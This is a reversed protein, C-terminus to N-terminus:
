RKGAALAANLTAALQAVDPEHLMGNHDGTTTRLDLYGQVLKEWGLTDKSVSLAKGIRSMTSQTAAEARILTADLPLPQAKYNMLMQQFGKMISLANELFDYNIAGQSAEVAQSILEDRPLHKIDKINLGLNGLNIDAFLKLLNADGQLTKMLTRNPLHSDLLGIFAIEQGADLLQRAMEWAVVGGISHGALYYPGEPQQERIAQIYYAAMDPLNDFPYQNPEFGRAQIGYVPIDDSLHNALKEYCLVLAGMPHVIFLPTKSGTPKIPVLPSWDIVIDGSVLKALEAVTQAKFLSALPLNIDFQKEIQNILRVALLSHGGLEFFNDHIGVKTRGLEEQWITVIAKEIDNRPAVYDHELDTDLALLTNRDVKGNPTLPWNSLALLNSPMMYDPLHKSLTSRWDIQNIAQEDGVVYAIILDEKVLVLCDQVNDLQRLTYEIEGLEIRLGRVKVQFDIRGVYMLQTLSNDTFRVLDGTRYMLGEGFPNAFFKEQTLEPQDHYGSGVSHGAICLEGLLGPPVLQNNENLVYIQVNNNPRGLPIAPTADEALLAPADAIRHYTAIDTCETPGYMNVIETSFADSNIWKKMQGLHIPEGGFLLLRLHNLSTVAQTTDHAMEILPYFASPACNIVTIKHQEINALFREVDYHEVDPLVVTGGVTLLAFFNKQTLDFGFASIILARDKANFGFERTYWDLLNIEGRHLVGAGKPLGTSGSTYIMYIGHEPRTKVSTDIDPNLVSQTSLDLQDINLPETRSGDLLQNFRESMCSETILIPADCDSLMHKLREDPYNADMPIYIGGAKLVAVIAVLVEIRRGLCIGVSSQATVGKAILFHALQNAHNNLEAYSLQKQGCIVATAQPTKEVQAEIMAQVSNFHPTDYTTGNLKDPAKAILELGERPLVLKLEALQSKGAILQDSLLMLRDLFQLDNFYATNFDLYLNLQNQLNKVAFGVSGEAQPTVHKFDFDHGQMPITHGLFDIFNYSFNIGGQPVMHRLAFISLCQRDRTEEQFAKAYAFLAKIDDEGEHVSAYQQPIVFPNVQYCCVMTEKHEANRGTGFENLVVDGDARTYWHILLGYLCKFYLAPTIRQRFCFKKIASFKEDNLVLHKKQWQTDEPLNNQIQLAAVSQLRERWFETVETSDFTQRNQAIYEGLLDEQQPCPEGNLLSEYVAIAKWLHAEGAVGDLLMHHFSMLTIFRSESIKIVGYQLLSDAKVDWPRVIFQQKLEEISEENLQQASLDEYVFAVERQRAIGLYAVDTYALDSTIVDARLIAFSDSVQQLAQQWLALDLELHIDYAYGVSNELTDPNTLSSLYLDRQMTTIPLIERYTDSSAALLGHLEDKDVLAFSNIGISPDECIQTLIRLYHEVMTAITKEDFLDTNYEWSGGLKGDPMEALNVTMDWKAVVQDSVMPKLQLGAFEEALLDEIGQHQIASQLQFSTQALPQYALTREVGLTQLTMEIPVHEHAFADLVTQRVHRLADALSPNEDFRSRILLSNVFFGILPEVEAVTRGVLPIGTCIDHMGSYRALLIQFATLTTMFLTSGQAQSIATLKSTLDAPVKIPYIAGNYTQIDPRPRDTPLRLLDPAGQLQNIWYGLQKDLMDGQLWSRQWYAYDTYQVALEPLPSPQDNNFAAYLQVIEMFLVKLSDGDSIIHHINIALLHEDEALKAVRAQFLPGTEIDFHTGANDEAFAIAQQEKESAPLASLDTIPLDFTKHEHIVLYPENDEETFTTRLAEHRQVITDFTQQLVNLNVAGNIRLAMPMNYIANDPILQDLFWLRQQAYTVPLQQDRPARELPPLVLEARGSKNDILAGIQAITTSEFLDRLALDINFLQRIRGAIQTATLSHGGLDFFSDHIGIQELGLVESWILALKEETETRPAVYDAGAGGGIDPLAERDIKGNPTLPWESLGLLAQPIMYDPLYDALQSRWDAPAQDGEILTMYAILTDDKVLALADSVNDQQRLAYEIEGLEIRLGRLKVQFDIRGIFELNGDELQRVMDGTRYLKGTAKDKGFAFPYDIFAEKTLEPKGFYGFGVSEGGVLLEGPVGPPVLHNEHDVVYLSVGVNAKGIPIPQNIFQDPQEVRYYSSIDTCETPGYMNVIQGICKDSQLWPLLKEMRIPEGGFLALRLTALEDYGEFNDILPYFASPASNLLTVSHQAITQRILQDDYGDSEPFVVAGGVTLAAFLNKQTLDFGIASIILSRDKETINFERCYWQLLNVEGRQKVGAGKPRGTSGSTYILYLMNDLGIDVAPNSSSYNEIGSWLSQESQDLYFTNDHEPLRESLCAESLLVKVRADSLMYALRERPYNADMPIYIAGTKITALLAVMFDIGASMCLGVATGRGVQLEEILYNALKNARQNLEIYSLQHTGAIVAINNPTREIQAEILAIVSNASYSSTTPAPLLEVTERPFVFTLDGLTEVGKDIIQRSLSLLRDIFQYDDFVNDSYGLILDLGKESQQGIFNICDQMRPIILKGPALTGAIEFATSLGYFNYIVQARGSGLAQRQASNSLNEYAESNARYNSVYHLLEDISGSAQLIDATAIFPTGQFYCGLTLVHGKPRGTLIENFYFGEHNNCYVKLMLCYLAKFYLGPTTRKKLCFKKISTWHADDVHRELQIYQGPGAAKSAPVFPSLPEVQLAQESWFQQVDRSDFHHRNFDIYKAFADNNSPEQQLTNLDTGKLLEQYIEAIKYNISAVAIGDCLAHNACTLIGIHDDSYPFLKIRFLAENHQYPQYVLAELQQRFADSDPPGAPPLTEAIVRSNPHEAKIVAQYAVDLWPTENGIFRSRLVPEHSVVHDLAQQWLDIRFPAHLDITVGLYNRQNDPNIIGDLFLDQQMATMPLLTEFQQRDLALLQFLSDTPCIPVANIPRDVDQLMHQLLQQFHEAMQAPTTADFLDSAYEISALIEQESENFTWIMDYKATVEDSELLEISLEESVVRNQSGMEPQYNFGVQAIPNYAASREVGLADVVQEAPLEQHNFAGLVGNKVDDILQSVTPNDSLDTRVILSNVFFGILGELARQNRGAIPIGVCIDRQSAYRSLLLQYASLMTMFPTINHTKSFDRIMGMLEAGISFRHYAGRGSQTAPRPRDTPLNLLKPAGRLTDLWYQLQEELIEGQLVHHQWYAYDAYQVPLPALLAAQRSKAAQYFASLDSLMVGLSWADSIIHHMNVLLLYEKDATKYLSTTLLPAQSLDFASSAMETSLRTVEQDREEGALHILDEVPLDWSDLSHIEQQTEGAENQIFSTRLIEHRMALQAFAHRLADSDLEGTIRLAAPMNYAASQPDLQQFFWLRQQNFSLPLVQNRNVPKIAPISLGKHEQTEIAAALGEVTPAEFLVKLPIDLQFQERLRAIVQTALLSHGGLEFFNDTAGVQGIGIITAWISAIASETENRPEIYESRKQQSQDPKPLAKRDVKGNPTLPMADLFLFVGPVMYDPLSQRLHEQLVEASVAEDHSVVYGVLIANDDDGKSTHVVGERVAPHKNLVTEIEGLEIRYGRVKVQNDIRGQCELRGDSLYRAMDGTRYIRESDTPDLERFPSDIFAASTLDDRGLYGFAVGDGGIWLEGSVGIPVPQHHSDLIFLSTNAIATGISVNNGAIPGPLHYVTSWVTTETPGYMNYLDVGRDILENALRPPLPEGGCLGKLSRSTRWDSNVLMHWTAPTAQLVSIHQENLLTTLAQHDMADMRSAIVVKGGLLLPLFLELGAIDFSLTTVALLIDHQDMALSEKMAYLFNVFAQQPIAVGKPKGTSGSTYITYAMPQEAEPRISLNGREQKAIAPAESDVCILTVGEKPLRDLLSQQTILVALQASEIVYETREQPYEPDIPVYACGSKLVALLAIVMENSRELCVGILRDTHEHHNRLHRALQNAATNLEAYSMTQGAFSIAAANANLEAQEEILEHLLKQRPYDALTQNWDFLQQRIEAEPLLPLTAISQEPNNVISQLLRQFHDVMRQITQREFLTTRYELVCNLGDDSETISLTLDFKANTVNDEDTDAGLLPSVQLDGMDVDDIDAQTSADGLNQLMFMVQFLPTHSLSRPVNLEDVLREFSVDQNQYATLTTQKVKELLTNFSQEPDIFSRLVLTNVFFGIISELEHRTRNAIPSGVTIDDQGSYRHLLIQFASLLTMFLTVGRQQSLSLLKGHLDANISFHLLRGQPDLVAARSLDSPLELLPVNNLQERWYQIQQELVDGQLWQRQWLAFDAYQVALEPLPSSQGHCHAQYLMMMERLMINVSWGDSIIHHMNIMLVYEPEDQLSLRWLEAKFLPGQELNFSSMMFNIARQQLAVEDDHIDFCALQCFDAEHIRQHPQDNHVAFTTRLTEHRAVIDAFAQQMAEVQLNGSLRLAFPINYMPSGPDIQDIIWLRQQAYSLQLDEAAISNRDVATVAPLQRQHGGELLRQALSAITATEFFERIPLDIDLADRIRAVVRTALLSHGGLHFFNDHVGVKDVALIDQWISALTQETDTRPAVYQVGGSADFDPAPLATRDIKGNPTLPWESLGIVAQPVMYEPLYDGLQTRWDAPTEKGESLTIYALLKESIVMALADTVGELQRLAYEIEGLEIRLGRLKVQFDIRGIFELNADSLQHVLDGTLYLKGDGFPNDIFAKETLEPKDLYGCGVGEGGIALEGPAGPPALEWDQDLVYLQVGDNAKGIPIPRHVFADPQVVRYFTAIDTCETPGYMNVLRGVCTKDELWPLLKEIRISEGGFLVLRLSKFQAFDKANEVLPYFASPASNILTVQHQDITERILQDDYNDDAPFVVAAGATLPAFLNKQTLDFGIASIILARDHSEFAFERTYWQLLNLEGRQKVVAGKPRGTSGSTYIMYLPDDLKIDADPNNTPNNTIGPWISQEGQDVYITAAHEPLRDQLCSETLLVRAGSDSLMYALRERPYNADMPIYTAGTKVTALLAVMFDIGASLCIGVSSDSGVQQQTILYHALQNARQNLEDYSLQQDGAIVAIHEPTREIQQEILAKVSSTSYQIDTQRVQTLLADREDPLTLLLDGIKEAGALVQQSLSNLRELFNLEDFAHTPFHFHAYLQPGIKEIILQVQNDVEIPGRVKLEVQQDDFDVLNDFAYYNYIFGLPEQAALQRQAILSIQSYAKIEQVYSITHDFLDQLTASKDFLAHKFIFPVLRHYCGTTEEHGKPRGALTDRLQFDAESRCYKHILIGFLAKFYRPVSLNHQQCYDSISQLHASDIQFHRSGFQGATKTSLPAAYSLPEVTSFQERWFALSGATDFQQRSLEVYKDFRNEIFQEPQQRCRALYNDMIQKLCSSLTTGDFLTHNTILVLVWQQPARKILEFRYLKNSHIDYTCYIIDDIHERMADDPLNRDSLDNVTFQIDRQQYVAMYAVDGYAATCPVFSTRLTQTHDILSQITDKMLQTDINCNFQISQGLSNMKTDPNIVQALYIDKITATLPWIEEVQDPCLNLAAYLEDGELLNITDIYQQPNAVMKELLLVFHRSLQEITTKDYLDTKYEILMDLGGERETAFLIMEYKATHSETSVAQLTLNGFQQPDTNTSSLTNQLTFGVQALPPYAPHREIKLQDLIMEQPIDSHNFCELASERVRQILETVRCNGSLDSRLCMVNIFFGLLDATGQRDRGAHPIAVCIDDQGSYRALLLQYATLLTMFLSANQQNALQKIKETLSANITFSHIDGAFTQQEPRPRDTPFASLKPPQKLKKNWYALQQKAEDSELWQRQWSSFDIYQIPLEALQPPLGASLSAYITTFEKLLIDMSWGDAVIHHTTVLLLHDNDALKILRARILPAKTLDFSQSAEQLALQQVTDDMGAASETSVDELQLCSKELAQLVHFPVGEEDAYCASLIEHRQTLLDFSERMAGTDIAGKLRVALPMNYATLNPQLQDLAWLRHQQFSLPLQASRDAVPISSSESSDQTAQSLLEIISNKQAKLQSKIEDTLAGSPANVKLKGNELYLKIDLKRLESILQVVSSM